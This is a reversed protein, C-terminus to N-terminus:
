CLQCLRRDPKIWFLYNFDRHYKHLFPLLQKELCKNIYISTNIAVAKSTRFLPESVGCDSVTIWMLLKKLFKEKRVFQVCEQCTEKINTNYGFNGPM